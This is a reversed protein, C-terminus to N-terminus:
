ISRKSVPLAPTVAPWMGERTDQVNAPPPAGRERSPPAPPQTPNPNPDVPPAQAPVNLLFPRANITSCAYVEDRHFEWHLYV